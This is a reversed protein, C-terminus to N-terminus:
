QILKEKFKQNSFVFRVEFPYTKSKRELSEKSETNYVEYIIKEDSNIIDARLGDLFIAETYFEIKQKKLFKCIELKMQIHENTENSGWKLCNKHRNMIRIQNRVERRNRFLKIKNM